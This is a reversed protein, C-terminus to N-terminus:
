KGWSGVNGGEELVCIIIKSGIKNYFSLVLWLIEWTNEGYRDVGLM